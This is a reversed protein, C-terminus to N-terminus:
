NVDCLRKIKKECWVVDQEIYTKALKLIELRITHAGVEDTYINGHRSDNNPFYESPLYISTGPHIMILTRQHLLSGSKQLTIEGDEWVQYVHGEVKALEPHSHKLILEKLGDNM